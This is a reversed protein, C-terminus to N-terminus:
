RLYRLLSILIYMHLDMRITKEQWNYRTSVSYELLLKATNLYDNVFIFKRVCVSHLSKSRYSDTLSFFCVNSRLPTKYQTKILTLFIKTNFNFKTTRM